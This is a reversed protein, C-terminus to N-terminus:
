GLRRGDPPFPTDVEGELAEVIVQKVAEIEELVQNNWFRLIRFGQAELWVSREADDTAQQSHHGGDLEIILKAEFCAFDAIYHGIPQQRRFKYGGLQRLRLHKWLAQEAKTLNKRLVKARNQTM